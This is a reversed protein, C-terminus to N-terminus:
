QVNIRMLLCVLQMEVATNQRRYHTQLFWLYNYVLEDSCLSLQLYPDMNEGQDKHFIREQM